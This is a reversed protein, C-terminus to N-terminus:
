RLWRYWSSTFSHPIAGRRTDISKAPSCNAMVKPKAANGRGPVAHTHSAPNIAHRQVTYTHTLRVM